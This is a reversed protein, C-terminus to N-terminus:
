LESLGPVFVTIGRTSVAGYPTSVEVGDAWRQNAPARSYLWRWGTLILNYGRNVFGEM